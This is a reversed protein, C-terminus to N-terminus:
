DGGVNAKRGANRGTKRGARHSLTDLAIANPKGRRIYSGTQMSGSITVLAGAGTAGTPRGAGKRHVLVDDGGHSEVAAFNHHTEIRETVDLAGFTERLAQLSSEYIRARSEEAYRMAYRM